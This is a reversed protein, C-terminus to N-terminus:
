LLEGDQTCQQCFHNYETLNVAEEGTAIEPVVSAPVKREISSEAEDRSMIQPQSDQGIDGNHKELMFLILKHLASIFESRTSKVM